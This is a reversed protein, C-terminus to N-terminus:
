GKFAKIQDLLGMVYLSEEIKPIWSPLGMIRDSFNEVMLSYPDIAAFEEVSEGVHLSSPKNWSTFADDGPCDITADSGTIVLHQAEQKEFSSLASVKVGNSFQASVKTTLDVGTAGANQDVSEIILTPEGHSMASWAHAQYLGVDLLSGGGMLPDLRYNDKFDGTFCFSSDITRLQGIDGGSVLEVIRVFRPHWRTWVAEVLIRDYKKAADAMAQAQEFNLALPKECLVHKGATLAKITWEFHQHNALNIYIADVDPDALLDDYSSHVKQPNLALSRDPDRSAVAYLSANKASHVAPALGTTAMWGAGLFGWRIM